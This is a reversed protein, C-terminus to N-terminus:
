VIIRIGMSHVDFINILNTLHGSQDSIERHTCTMKNAKVYVPKNLKLGKYPVSLTTYIILLHLEKVKKTIYLTYVSIITKNVSIMMMMIMIMMMMMMMMM